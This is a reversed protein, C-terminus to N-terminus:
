GWLAGRFCYFAQKVVTKYAFFTLEQYEKKIEEGNRKYVWKIECVSVDSVPMVIVYM